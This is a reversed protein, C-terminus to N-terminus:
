ADPHIGSLVYGHEVIHAYWLTDWQQLGHWRAALTPGVARALVLALQAIWACSGAVIACSWGGCAGPRTMSRLQMTCFQLVASVRRPPTSLIEEPPVG